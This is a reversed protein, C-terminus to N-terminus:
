GARANELIERIRELRQIGAETKKDVSRSLLVTETMLLPLKLNVIQQCIYHIFIIMNQLPNFKLFIM